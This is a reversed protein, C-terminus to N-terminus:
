PTAQDADKASDRHGLHSGAVGVPQRPEEPVPADPVPPGSHHTHADDHAADGHSHGGGCGGHGGGHGAHDGGRLHMVMMGVFPLLFLLNWISM